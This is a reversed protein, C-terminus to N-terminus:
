PNPRSAARRSTMSIAMFAMWYQRHAAAPSGSGSAPMGRPVAPTPLSRLDRRREVQAQDVNTSDQKIWDLQAPRGRDLLALGGPRDRRERCTSPAPM